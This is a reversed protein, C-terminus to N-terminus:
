NRISAFKNLIRHHELKSPRFNALIGLKLDYAKLYASVQKFDIPTLRPVAKLELVIKNEVLFDLQYRGIPQDAFQLPVSLQSKYPIGINNLAIGIARQYYKEQYRNGLKNHVDFLVGVIQYSLEPYIITNANIPESTQM